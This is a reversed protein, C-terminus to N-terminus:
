EGISVGLDSGLRFALHEILVPDSTHYFSTSQEEVLEDRVMAYPPGEGYYLLFPATTGARLSPVM